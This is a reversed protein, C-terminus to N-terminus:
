GDAFRRVWTEFSRVFRDCLERTATNVFEGEADFLNNSGSIYTEPAQMTLAGAGV